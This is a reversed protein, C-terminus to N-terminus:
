ASQTDCLCLVSHAALCLHSSAPPTFNVRCSLFNITKQPSLKQTSHSFLFVSTLGEGQPAVTGCCVCHPRSGDSSASHCDTDQARSLCRRIHASHASSLQTHSVEASICPQTVATHSSATGQMAGRGENRSSHSVEQPNFLGTKEAWREEQGKGLTIWPFSEAKKSVCSRSCHGTRGSRQWPWAWSVHTLLGLVCLVSQAQETM